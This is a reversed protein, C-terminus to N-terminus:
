LNGAIAEGGHSNQAERALDAQSYSDLVLAIANRVQTWLVRAICHEQRRRSEPDTEAVCEVPAIPDELVRIIDGATIREPNGGM